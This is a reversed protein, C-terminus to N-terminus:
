TAAKVLEELGRPHGPRLDIYRVGELDAPVAADALLVPIVRLGKARALGLEYMLNASRKESLLAVFTDADDIAKEIAPRFAQGPEVREADLWIRAGRNRLADAVIRAVEQDDHSYSLFVRPAVRLKKAVGALYKSFIGVLTGVAAAAVSITFESFHLSKGLIFLLAVLASISGVVSVLGVFDSIAERKM